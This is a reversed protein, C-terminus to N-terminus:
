GAAGQSDVANQGSHHRADNHILTCVMSFWVRNTFSRMKTYLTSREYFCFYIESSLEKQAVILM